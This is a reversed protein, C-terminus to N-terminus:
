AEACVLMAWKIVQGAATHQFELNGGNARASLGSITNFLFTISSTGHDVPFVAVGGSLANRAVCLGMLTGSGTSYWQNANTLTVSRNAYFYKDSQVKNTTYINGNTVDIGGSITSASAGSVVIGRGTISTFYGGYGDSARGQIAPGTSYNAAYLANGVSSNEVTLTSSDSESVLQACGSARGNIYMWGGSGPGDGVGFTARIADSSDYAVLMNTSSIPGIELRTGTDATRLTSGTITGGTTIQNGTIKCGMLNGANDMYALWNTGAVGGGNLASNYYGIHTSDIFFGAGTPSEFTKSKVSIIRPTNFSSFAVVVSTATSSVTLTTMWLYDGLTDAPIAQSWGGSPLTGLSATSFTYTGSGSGLTVQSSTSTRLYLRIEATSTGAGGPQGDAGKIKAVSWAGAGVRTRMYVDSVTATAHWSTSGDISYEVSVSSGDEGKIKIVVGWTGDTSLKQRMYVDSATAPTHWSTSGDVSYEIQVYAGAPGQISAGQAGTKSKSISFRKTLTTYGSKTATIDVYGSDVSMASVSLVKSTNNWSSTVGSSASTSIAWSSTMDTTGERILVTTTAATYSGGSGDSATSIVASESSLDMSFPTFKLYAGPAFTVSGGIQLNDIYAGTNDVRVVEKPTPSTADRLVMGYTGSALQGLEIRDTTMTGDNFRMRTYGNVSSEMTIPSRGNALTDGLTITTNASFKGSTMSEPSIVTIPSAKWASPQTQDVTVEEIQFCDFWVSAGNTNVDIRMNCASTPAQFKVYFRTWGSASTITANNTPFTAGDSAQIYGEVSASTPCYAYFSYIYYAGTNTAVPYSTNNYFYSFTDNNVATLKVSRTGAFAHTSDVVGNAVGTTMVYGASHQEFTDRGETIINPSSGVALKDATISGAALRSASLYGATIKDASLDNIKANTIAANALYATGIVANALANWALDHAGSINTAIMFQGDTLTPLTESTTYVGAGEWYIYTNATNGAAITHAVGNYYLTHSNWAVSGAIPSNDTWSDGELILAKTNLKSATIAFNALDAAGVTGPTTSKAVTYAAAYGSNNVARIKVYYTTGVVGDIVARNTGFPAEITRLGTTFGSDTAVLVEYNKLDLESVQAWEVFISKFASTVFFQNDPIVSPATDNVATTISDTVWTESLNNSKDIAAVRVDYETNPLLNRLVNPPDEKALLGDIWYTDTSRKYQIIAGAYDVVDPKTYMVNIVAEPVLGLSYIDSTLVLNTPVPPPIFDGVGGSGTVTVEHVSTWNLGETGFFDYAAAKIYWTGLDEQALPIFATTGIDDYKKNQETPVFDGNVLDASKVAHILYGTVDIEPSKTFTVTFGNSAAEVVFM